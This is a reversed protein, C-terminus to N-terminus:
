KTSNSEIKLIQVLDSYFTFFFVLTFAKEVLLFIKLEYSLILSENIKLFQRILCKHAEKEFIFYDEIEIKYYKM